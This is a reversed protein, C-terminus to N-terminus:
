PQQQQQQQPNTTALPEEQLLRQQNAMQQEEQQHLLLAEKHAQELSKQQQSQISSTFRQRLDENNSLTTQLRHLTGAASRQLLKDTRYNALCWELMKYGNPTWLLTTHYDETLSLNHLVLCARNLISESACFNKMALVVLNAIQSVSEDLMDKETM